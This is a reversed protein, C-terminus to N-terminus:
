SWFISKYACMDDAQTTKQTPWKLDGKLCHLELKHVAIEVWYNLCKLDLHGKLILFVCHYLFCIHTICNSRISLTQTTQESSADSRSHPDLDTDRFHSLTSLHIFHSFTVNCTMHCLTYFKCNYVITQGKSRSIVTMAQMVCCTQRTEFSGYESSHVQFFPLFNVTPNFFVDCFRLAVKFTLTVRVLRIGKNRVSLM